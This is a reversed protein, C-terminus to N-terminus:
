LDALAKLAEAQEQLVDDALQLQLPVRAEGTTLEFGVGRYTSTLKQGAHVGLRGITEPPITMNLGDGQRQLKITFM